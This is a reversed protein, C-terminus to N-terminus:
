APRRGVVVASAGMTLPHFTVDRFGAAELWERYEALTYVNGRETTALMVVAFLLAPEHAARADDPVFDHILLRGGPKVAAFLRRALDLNQAADFHHFFHSCIVADFRAAPLPTDFASGPLWTVRDAVGYREAIPRAHRLVNEWDLSTLRAGPLRQLATFGYVGSGVAVDLIEAPADADLGLQEAVAQAGIASVSASADSFTEWFPHEPVDVMAQPPKGSRAIATLQGVGNWLEPSLTIRSFAGMYAPSERVLLMEALPELRYGGADKAVVGMATLADLVIGVARADAGAAAAIAAADRQGRAIPGFLDLDLATKLVGSKIFAFMLDPVTHENM